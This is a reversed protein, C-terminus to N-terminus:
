AITEVFKTLVVRSNVLRTMEKSLVKSIQSATVKDKLDLNMVSVDPSAPIVFLKNYMSTPYECFGIKRVDSRIDAPLKADGYVGCFERLNRAYRDMIYFGITSLNVFAKNIMLFLTKMNENVDFGFPYMKGTYKCRIFIKSSSKFSKNYVPMDHQNFMHSDGGVGDTLTIFVVKETKNKQLIRPINNYMWCLAQNLPTGALDYNTIRHIPYCYLYKSMKDFEQSSMSSDFFRIMDMDGSTAMGVEGNPINIGKHKKDYLHYHFQQKFAYVVFPINARRCFSSLTIVQGLSDKLSETMSGSWDLLMIFSHNKEDYAIELKRFIDGGTLYKHLKSTSLIGSNAVQSRSYRSAAKRMEFEKFLHAVAKNSEKRFSNYYETVKTHHEPSWSSFYADFDSLIKKHEIEQIYGRTDPVVIITDSFSDTYEEVKRDFRKQTESEPAEGDNLQQSGSSGSNSARETDGEEDEDEGRIEEFDYEDDDDDSDQPLKEIFDDDGDEGSEERKTRKEQEQIASFNYIKKALEYVDSVTETKDIENVLKREDKNFTVGSRFGVKFFINIRDIFNMEAINARSIGFFDRDNLQRYGDYFDKRAGPYRDKMLREIRVDELINMYMGFNRKNEQKIYTLYSQDSFLAHGVEHFAMMTEEAESLNLMIPLRLTRNVIDFSATSVKARIVTINENAMLKSLLDLTKM